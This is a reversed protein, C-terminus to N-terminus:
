DLGVEKQLVMLSTMPKGEVLHSIKVRGIQFTKPIPSGMEMDKGRGASLGPTENIALAEEECSGDVREPGM